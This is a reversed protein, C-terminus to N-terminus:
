LGKQEYAIQRWLFLLSFYEIVRQARLIRRACYSLLLQSGQLLKYFNQILIRKNKLLLRKSSGYLVAVFRLYYYRVSMKCSMEM